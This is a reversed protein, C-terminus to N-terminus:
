AFVGLRKLIIIGDRIGQRYAFEAEKGCADLLRELCSYTVDKERASLNTEIEDTMQQGQEHLMRGIETEYFAKTANSYLESLFLDYAQDLDM